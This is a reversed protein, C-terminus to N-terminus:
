KYAELMANLLDPYHITKPLRNIMGFNESGVKTGGNDRLVCPIGLSAAKGCGTFVAATMAASLIMALIKKM